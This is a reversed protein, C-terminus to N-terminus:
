HVYRQGKFQLSIGNSPARHMGKRLAVQRGRYLGLVNSEGTKIESPQANYARGLFNLKM